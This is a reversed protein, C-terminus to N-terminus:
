IAPLSDGKHKGTATSGTKRKRRRGTRNGVACGSLEGYITKGSQYCPRIYEDHHSYRLAGVMGFRVEYQIRQSFATHGSLAPSRSLSDHASRKREAAPSLAPHNCGGFFCAPQRCVFDSDEYHAGLSKRQQQQRNYLNQLYTKIAASMPLMRCSKKTKTRDKYITGGKSAVATKSILITEKEFDVHSWTLGAVESRRLGYTCALIIETEIKSKQAAQFLRAIQKEDYCNPVFRRDNRITVDHAPNFAIVHNKRAVELASSINSLHKKVTSPSLTQMKYNCYAQIHM